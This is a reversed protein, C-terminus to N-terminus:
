PASSIQGCVSKGLAIAAASGQDALCTCRSRRTGGTLLDDRVDLVRRPWVPGLPAAIKNLGFDSEGRKVAAPGPRINRSVGNSSTSRMELLDCRASPPSAGRGRGLAFRM